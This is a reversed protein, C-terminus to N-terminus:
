IIYGRVDIAFKVDQSLDIELAKNSTTSSAGGPVRDIDNSVIGQQGKGSAVM